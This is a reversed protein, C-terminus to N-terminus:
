QRAQVWHPFLVRTRPEWQELGPERYWTTELGFQVLAIGRPRRRFSSQHLDHLVAEGVSHFIPGGNKVHDLAELFSMDPEIDDMVHTTFEGETAGSDQTWIRFTIRM